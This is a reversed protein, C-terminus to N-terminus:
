LCMLRMAELDSPSDYLYYGDTTRIVFEHIYSGKVRQIGIWVFEVNEVTSYQKTYLNWISTGLQISVVESLTKEWQQISYHVGDLSVYGQLYKQLYKKLTRRKVNRYWKM